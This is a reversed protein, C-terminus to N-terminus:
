RRQAPGPSATLRPVAANLTASGGGGFVDFSNQLARTQVVPTQNGYVPSYSGSGLDAGILRVSAPLSALAPSVAMPQYPTSTRLDASGGFAWGPLVNRPGPPTSDGRRPTLAFSNAQGVCQTNLSLAPPTVQAPGVAEVLVPVPTSSRPPTTARPTGTRRAPSVPMYGVSAAPVAPKVLHSSSSSRVAGTGISSGGCGVGFNAAPTVAPRLTSSSASSYLGQVRIGAQSRPTGLMMAMGGPMPPTAVGHGHVLSPSSARGCSVLSASGPQMPVPPSSSTQLRPSASSTAAVHLTAAQIHPRSAGCRQCFLADALFVNGCSCAQQSAPPLQRAIQMPRTESLETASAVSALGGALRPSTAAVSVSVVGGQPSSAAKGPTQAAWTFAQGGDMSMVQTQGRAAQSQIADAEAHVPPPQCYVPAGAAMPRLTSAPRTAMTAAHMSSHRVEASGGLTVVSGSARSPPGNFDQFEHEATARHGAAPTGGSGGEAYTGQEVAAGSREPGDVRKREAAGKSTRNRLHKWAKVEQDINELEEMTREMLEPGMEDVDYIYLMPSVRQLARSFDANTTLLGDEDYIAQNAVAVGFYRAVNERLTSAFACSKVFDGMEEVDFWDHLLGNVEVRLVRSTKESDAAAVSGKETTAVAKKNLNARESREADAVLAALGGATTANDVTGNTDVAGGGLRVTGAAQVDAM